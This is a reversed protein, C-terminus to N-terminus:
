LLGSEAFSYLGSAGIIVHDLLRIDLMKLAKGVRKTADIDEGSPSVDGSPHNHALVVGAAGTLLANRAISAVDVVCSGTGGAGVEFAAVAGLKTNTCLMWISESPLRDARFLKCVIGKVAEANNATEAPYKVSRDKVLCTTYKNITM